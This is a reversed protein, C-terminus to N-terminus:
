KAIELHGNSCSLRFACENNHHINIYYKVLIEQANILHGNNCYTIFKQQM